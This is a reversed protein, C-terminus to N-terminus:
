YEGMHKLRLHRSSWGSYRCKKKHKQCRQIGPYDRVERAAAALPLIEYFPVLGEDGRIRRAEQVIADITSM